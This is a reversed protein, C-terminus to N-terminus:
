TPLAGSGPPCGPHQSRASNLAQTITAVAFPWPIREQELRVDGDRLVELARAEGATLHGIPGRRPTPDAVALHNFRQLVEASMLVSETQPLVARLAGLIALGHSDLDGWYLVRAGAIWPVAALETVVLGNGHVAIGGPMPELASVTQLNESILVWQPRWDLRGLESTPANFDLLEGAISADLVRVRFRRAERRLGLEASGTHAAVLRQVLSSHRELWKTDVGEIPLQRGFLGPEPHDRFWEVVACLRQEDADDLKLLAAALSPLANAVAASPWRQRLRASIGSLMHWQGSTGALAAVATAGRVNVRAPLQQTGLSRWHAQRWDLSVGSPLGVERWASAWRIVASTDAAAITETPPNLPYSLELGAGLDDSGLWRRHGARYKTTAWAKLNAVTRM